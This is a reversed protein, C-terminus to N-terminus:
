RDMEKNIIDMLEKETIEGTEYRKLLDSVHAQDGASLKRFKTIFGAEQLSLFEIDM